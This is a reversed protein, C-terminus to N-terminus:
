PLRAGEFRDETGALHKCAEIEFRLATRLEMQMGDRM